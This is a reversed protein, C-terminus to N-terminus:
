IRGGGHPIGPAGGASQPVRDVWLWDGRYAGRVRSGQNKSIAPHARPHAGNQALDGRCHPALPNPNSDNGPPTGIPLV